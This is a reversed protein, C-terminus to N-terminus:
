PVVTSLVCCLVALKRLFLLFCSLALKLMLDSHSLGLVIGITQRCDFRSAQSENSPVISAASQGSAGCSFNPWSLVQCAWSDQAVYPCFYNGIDHQPTNSTASITATNPIHSWFSTSISAGPMPQQGQLDGNYTARHM